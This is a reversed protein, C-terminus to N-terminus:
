MVKAAIRDYTTRDKERYYSWTIHVTFSLAGIAALLDVYDTEEIEWGRKKVLFFVVNSELVLVCLMWFCQNLTRQMKIQYGVSPLRSDISLRIGIEVFAIGLMIETSATASAFNRTICSVAVINLLALTPMINKDYQGSDRVVTLKVHLCKDGSGFSLPVFEFQLGDKDHLFDPVSVHDVALGYPIRTSGQSDENTALNLMWENRDWRHGPGRHALIGIKIVLDHRDHPFMDVRMNEQSLTANYM